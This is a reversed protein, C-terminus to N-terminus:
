QVNIEITKEAGSRILRIEARTEERMSNLVKVAMGVDSLRQGNIETVIDGDELGVQDYISDIDIEVLKFGELAGNQYYPVAAAQMLIKALDYKILHDKYAVTLTVKDGHVEIEKKGPMVAVAQNSRDLEEGIKVRIMDTGRKFYVYRDSLQFVIVGREVESGVKVAFAADSSRKKLLVVGESSDGSGIAGLVLYAADTQAFLGSGTLGVILVTLLRLWTKM